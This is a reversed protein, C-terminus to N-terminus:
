QSHHDIIRSVDNHTESECNAPRPGQQLERRDHWASTSTSAPNGDTGGFGVEFCATVSEALLSDGTRCVYLCRVVESESQRHLLMTRPLCSLLCIRCSSQGRRSELRQGWVHLLSQVFIYCAVGDAIGDAVVLPLEFVKFLVLLGYLVVGVQASSVLHRVTFMCGRASTVGDRTYLNSHM